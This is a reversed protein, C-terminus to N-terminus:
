GTDQNELGTTEGDVLWGHALLPLRVRL